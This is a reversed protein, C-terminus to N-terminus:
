GLWYQLLAAIMWALMALNGVAAGLLVFRLCEADNGADATGMLRLAFFLPVVILSTLIM